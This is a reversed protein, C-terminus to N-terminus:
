QGDRSVLQAAQLTNQLLMAITVPGVCGPVPTITGAVAVATPFDVDGHLRDETRNIGVDIVTAGPKIWDAKVMRDHGVAAVLVDVPSGACRHLRVDRRHADAIREILLARHASLRTSRCVRDPRIM